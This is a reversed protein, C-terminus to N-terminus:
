VRTTLNPIRRPSAAGSEMISNVEFSFASAFVGRLFLAARLSSGCRPSRRAAAVAYRKTPRVRVRADRRNCFLCCGGRRRGEAIFISFLEANGGHKEPSILAFSPVSNEPRAPHASPGDLVGAVSRALSRLLQGLDKSKRERQESRETAWPDRVRGAGHFHFAEPTKAM